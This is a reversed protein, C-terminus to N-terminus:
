RDPKPCTHRLVEDALATGLLRNAYTDLHAYSIMHHRQGGLIEHFDVVPVREREAWAELDRMLHDHILFNFEYGSLTKGQELRGRIAAVEADYTVGKLAAREEIPLGFWSMSNAQQKIVIFLIGRDACARQIDEIDALFSLSTREGIQQVYEINGQAEPVTADAKLLSEIFRATILTDRVGQWAAQLLAPDPFDSQEDIGDLFEMPHWQDADNRGEYFTVVDPNLALGEALFLERIEDAVLHPIGFNIVEYTASDCGENLASEALVPYVGDEPNFFGFTSSAGLTLVRTVGEPKEISFDEGRFGHRNIRVSVIEGTDVDRYQKTENPFYKFYGLRENDHQSVSDMKAESANWRVREREFQTEIEGRSRETIEQRQWPTGYLMVRPGVQAAFYLRFLLESLILTAILLYAVYALAAIKSRAM